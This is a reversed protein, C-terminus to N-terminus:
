RNARCLKPLPAGREMSSNVSCYTSVENPAKPRSIEGRERSNRIFSHSEMIVAEYNTMHFTGDPFTRLHGNNIRM